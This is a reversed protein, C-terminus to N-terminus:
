CTESPQQHYKHRTCTEGPLAHPQNELAPASPQPTRSNPIRHAACYYRYFYLTVPLSPHRENM